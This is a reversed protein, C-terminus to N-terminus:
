LKKKNNIYEDFNKGAFTKTLANFDALINVQMSKFLELLPTGGRTDNNDYIMGVLARRTAENIEVGENVLTQINAKLDRKFHLTKQLSDGQGIFDDLLELTELKAQEDLVNDSFNKDGVTNEIDVGVNAAQNRINKHEIELSAQEEKTIARGINKAYDDFCKKAM